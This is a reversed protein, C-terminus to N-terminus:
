KTAEEHMERLLKKGRESAFDVIEPSMEGYELNRFLHGEVDVDYHGFARLLGYVPSFREMCAVCTEIHHQEPDLKEADPKLKYMLSSMKKLEHDLDKVRETGNRIMNLFDEFRCELVFRIYSIEAKTFHIIAKPTM